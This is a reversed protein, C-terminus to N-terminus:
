LSLNPFASTSQSQGGAENQGRLRAIVATQQQQQQLPLEGHGAASTQLCYPQPIQLGHIKQLNQHCLIILRKFPISGVTKGKKQCFFIFIKPATYVIM